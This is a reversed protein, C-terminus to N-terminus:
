LNLYEQDVSRGCISYIKRIFKTENWTPATTGPFDQSFNLYEEALKSCRNLMVWGGPASGRLVSGAARDIM